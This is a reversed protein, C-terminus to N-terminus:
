TPQADREEGATPQLRLVAKRSLHMILLHMPMRIWHSRLFLAFRALRTQWAHRSEVPRLAHAYCIDMLKAQPSPPAYKKIAKLTQPPIATALLKSSYRLAYYLPRTLGTLEARMVLRDWFNPSPSFHTLLTHLDVLDRLANDFEGEHFLHAASHLIMDEPCLVHIGSNGLAQAGNFFEGIDVHIRATHPLISHHVDIVTKRIAHELPPIEHMWTRYYKQDYASDVTAKWGHVLLETETEQIQALPVLIDVDGFMRGAANPLEAALYAAGKLLIVPRPVPGLAMRICDIEFRMARDQRESMRRASTLHRQPSDPVAELLEEEALMVALRALLNTRRAQCILQDWAPEDLNLTLNPTRLVQLLLDSPTMM